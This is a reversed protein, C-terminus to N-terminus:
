IRCCLRMLVQQSSRRVACRQSVAFVLCPLLTLIEGSLLLQFPCVPQSSCEDVDTQCDKGSFGPRCTCVYSAIGDTCTGGNQCPASACEPTRFLLFSNLHRLPPSYFCGGNINTQSFSGFFLVAVHSGNVHNIVICTLACRCMGPLALTDQPACAVSDTRKILVRAVTGVSCLNRLRTLSLYM